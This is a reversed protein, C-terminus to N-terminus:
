NRLQFHLEHKKRMRQLFLELMEKLVLNKLYKIKNRRFIMSKPVHKYSANWQFCRKSSCPIKTLKTILVFDLSFNLFIGCLKYVVQLTRQISRTINYQKSYFQIRPIRPKRFHWKELTKVSGEFRCCVHIICYNLLILLRTDIYTLQQQRSFYYCVSLTTQLASKSRQDKIM